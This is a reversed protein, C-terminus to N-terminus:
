KTSTSESIERCSQHYEHFFINSYIVGRFYIGWQDGHQMCIFSNLSKGELNWIHMKACASVCHQVLYARGLIKFLGEM